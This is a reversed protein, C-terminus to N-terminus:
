RHVFKIWRKLDREKVKADPFSIEFNALWFIAIKVM